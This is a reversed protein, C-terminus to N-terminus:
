RRSKDGAARLAPANGDSAASSDESFLVGRRRRELERDMERMQADHERQAREEETEKSTDQGYEFGARYQQWLALITSPEQETEIVIDHFKKREKFLRFVRAALEGSPKIQLGRRRALEEVERRDFRHVGHRDPQSHLQGVRQMRRINEYSTSLIKAAETRTVRPRRAVTQNM